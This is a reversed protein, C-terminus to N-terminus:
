FHSVVFSWAGTATDYSVFAAGMSASHARLRAIFGAGGDTSAGFGPEDDFVGELTIIARKNLGSGVPPREDLPVGVGDDDEEGGGEGGGSSSTSSDDRYVTVSEQRIRLVRSLDLGRVDTDGPWAVGGVGPRYVSFNRVCALAEEAMAALTDLPPSTLYGQEALVGM